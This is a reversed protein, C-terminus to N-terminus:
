LIDNSDCGDQGCTPEEPKRNKTFYSKMSTWLYSFSELRLLVALGLYVAIGCVIQIILLPLEPIPILSLAYVAGWMVASLLLPPTLDWLQDRWRYAFLQKMVVMTVFMSFVGTFVVAWSIALPTTFAFVSVALAAIGFIKKIIETKLYLDSRGLANMAQLDTAEMPYLAAVICMMQLYPVTPMWKETLLVRVFPTAIAALGAMMPFIMLATSRNTKRVMERVRGVDEQHRAYAPFLVSLAVSNLNESIM